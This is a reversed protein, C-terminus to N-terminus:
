RPKFHYDREQGPPLSAAWRARIRTAAIQVKAYGDTGFVERVADRWAEHTMMDYRKDWQAREEETSM